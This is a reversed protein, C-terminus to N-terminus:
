LSTLLLVLLLKLLFLWVVNVDIGLPAWQDNVLVTTSHKEEQLVKRNNGHANRICSPPCTVSQFNVQPQIERRLKGKLTLYHLSCMLFLM